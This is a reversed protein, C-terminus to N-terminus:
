YDLDVKSKMAGRRPIGTERGAASAVGVDSDAKGTRDPSAAQKGDGSLNPDGTRVKVGRVLGDESPYTGIM